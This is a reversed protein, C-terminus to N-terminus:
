SPIFNYKMRDVFYPMDFNNGNYTVIIDPDLERIREVVLKILKSDDDPDESMYIEIDQDNLQLGAAIIADRQSDPFRGFTHMEFDLSLIRLPQTNMWQTIWNPDDIYIRDTFRVRAEMVATMDSDYKDKTNKFECKYLPGTYLTDNLLSYGFIETCNAQALPQKSYGYPKIPARTVTQKSNNWIEIYQLGQYITARASLPVQM